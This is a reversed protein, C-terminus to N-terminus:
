VWSNQVWEGTGDAYVEKKWIPVSRKLEDILFRCAEFAEARHPTSVGVFVSTEAPLVAGLRHMVCVRAIPWRSCVEETLQRIEKMAMPMYCEYELHSTEREDTLRRTTGVFLALGGASEERLYAIAYEESIEENQLAIWYRGNRCQEM